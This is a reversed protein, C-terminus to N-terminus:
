GYGLELRASNLRLAVGRELIALNAIIEQLGGVSINAQLQDFVRAFAGELELAYDVVAETTADFEPAADLLEVVRGDPVDRLWSELERCSGDHAYHELNAAVSAHRWRALTAFSSVPDGNACALEHFYRALSRHHGAVRALLERVQVPGCCAARRHDDPPPTKM